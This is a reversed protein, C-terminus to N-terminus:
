EGKTFQILDSYDGADAKRLAEIYKSRVDSVNVLDTSGWYLSKGDLKQLVLDAM